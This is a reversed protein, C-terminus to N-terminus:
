SVPEGAGAMCDHLETLLGAQRAKEEVGASLPHAIFRGQLKGHLESELVFRFLPQMRIQSGELSTVESIATIRRQGDRMRELQVVLDVASAIQAQIIQESLREAGMQLMNTLRLLADEPTNAHLTCLSGDHGTNMAQLMDFAEAGRVEGLIIRDPRMRLANRVL